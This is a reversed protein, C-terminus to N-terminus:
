RLILQCPRGLLFAVLDQHAARGLLQRKVAGGQEGSSAKSARTPPRKRSEM